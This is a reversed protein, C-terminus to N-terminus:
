VRWRVEADPQYACTRGTKIANRLHRALVPDAQEIVRVAARIRMTVAKRARDAPDGDRRARGGLGVAGALEAAIADREARVRGDTSGAELAADLVTLRARYAARATADLRPGLDGGAPPAGNQGALDLAPVPRGPHALLVALDRVGKGDPVVSVTGRWEVRWYPGDRRLVGEDRPASAAPAPLAAEDRVRMALLGAGAREYDDLARQFYGAAERHRGLLEALRGLQHGVTGFVAAGIGDVAWLREYPRLDTLLRAAAREDRLLVAIESLAWHGELWEADAAIDEAPTNLLSRLAARAPEDDGAALLVAAPAARYTVPLPTDAVMELVDRVEDAVDAARGATLQAHMRLTLVLLAANASGARTGIAEATAANTLAAAIDGALMARAGRWIEPLWQYLPIGIVGAARRYALIEADVEALDGREFHGLLRLRRALLTSERDPAVELMRGAAALRQAVYEPGAVADCFAALAGAITAADGVREAMEVADRALRRRQGVSALGTLALSLRGLLAARARSDTGPLRALARRLADVYAEDAIPVEFGIVGGGIGLAAAALDDHRDSADAREIAREFSQRSGDLDGALRQARGLRILVVVRDAASSALARQLHAVAQDFGLANVAAQAARVSWAVAQEPAQPGSARFWHYALREPDPDCSQLCEAVRRHLRGREAGPLDAVLVERVLAHAFRLRAAGSPDPAVLGARLAEDLLGAVADPPLDAVTGVVAEDIPDRGAAATLATIAAAALLRACPQSLRAVHRTLVEHVGPPVVVMADPGHVAVLRAVESIFFPNGGTRAVVEAVKDPLLTDGVIRSVLTAAAVDDLPPVVVRRVGTPLDGGVPEAGPEDRRTCLLAVPAAAAVLHLLALSSADAWQLDELVILLRGAHRELAEIVATFLVQRDDRGAGPLDFPLDPAITALARRWPWYPPMGAASCWGRVVHFGDTALGAALVDAVSSKGAGAEGLLLAARSTGDAAAALWGRLDALLGDRGIVDARAPM